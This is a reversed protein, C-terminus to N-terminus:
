GRSRYYDKITDYLYNQLASLRKGPRHVLFVPVSFNAGVIEVERLQGAELDEVVACRLLLTVGLGARTVRKMAEPHGLEMVVKRDRVGIRDLQQELLKRRSFGRAHRVDLPPAMTRCRGPGCGSTAASCDFPHRSLTMVKSPDTWRWSSGFRGVRRDGPWSPWGDIQSAQKWTGIMVQVLHPSCRAQGLWVLPCAMQMPQTGLGVWLQTSRPRGRGACTTHGM